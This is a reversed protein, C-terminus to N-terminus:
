PAHAPQWPRRGPPPALRRAMLGIMGMQGHSRFPHAPTRLRPRTTALAGALVPNTGGGLPAASGRFHAAGRTEARDDLVIRCYRAVWTVLKGAYGGDAWVLAISPMAMRARDLIRRGGDRDQLSAATVLVVILLGLTDVVIRRKRGNVKKGADYGRSHASVADAGKVSQADVIAASAM